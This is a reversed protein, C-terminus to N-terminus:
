LAHRISRDRLAGLWGAEGPPQEEFWARIVQVCLLDVLRVAMMESGDGAKRTEHLIFRLTTDLWPLSSRREATIHIYPPLLSLLPHQEYSDFRLGWGRLVTRRGGGGYRLPPYESQEVADALGGAQVHDRVVQAYPLTPTATSDAMSAVGGPSFMILDGTELSVPENEAYMLVCDGKEVIMLSFIEWGPYAIGWPASLESRRSKTGEVRLWSLVDSLVEM